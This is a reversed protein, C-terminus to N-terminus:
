AFQPLYQEHTKLLEDALKEADFSDSVSGDILLAEVFLKRDGTLAADVTISASAIKRLQPAALIDPYDNDQIAKLGQSTAVSTMELFVDNPLNPIAGMNPLNAFFIERTDDDIARLISLLKTHEGTSRQFIGDD